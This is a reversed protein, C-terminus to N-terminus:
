YITSAQPPTCREMTIEAEITKKRFPRHLERIQNQLM